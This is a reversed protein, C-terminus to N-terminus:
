IDKLSLHSCKIEYATNIQHETIETSSPKKNETRYKNSNEYNFNSSFVQIFYVIQDHINLREILTWYKKKDETKM